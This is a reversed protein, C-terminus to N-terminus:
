RPSTITFITYNLLSCRGEILFSADPYNYSDKGQTNLGPKQAFLLANEVLNLDESPVEAVSFCLTEGVNVVSRFQSEHCHQEIRENVDKSQGIYILDRLSVTNLIPDHICRYVLYVGTIHPIFSRRDERWYGKFSLKINKM